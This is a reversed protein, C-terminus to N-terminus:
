SEQEVFHWCVGALDIINVERGYPQVIPKSLRIGYKKPLQKENVENWFEDANTVGVTVMLNEAFEKNDYKQLIFSCGDKDLGLYDGADWNIKFGLELFFQRSGEFNDGSPIFPQLYLFKM